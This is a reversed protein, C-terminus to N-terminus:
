YPPTRSSSATHALPEIADLPVLITRLEKEYAAIERVIRDGDWGFQAAM